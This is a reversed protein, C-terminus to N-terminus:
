LRVMVPVSVEADSVCVTLVVKTTLATCPFCQRKEDGCVTLTLMVRTTAEAEATAM